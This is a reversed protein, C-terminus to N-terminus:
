EAKLVGNQEGLVQAIRAGLRRLQALSQRQGRLQAVGDDLGSALVVEALVARPPLAGHTADLLWRDGLRVARLESVLDVSAVAVLQARNCVESVVLRAQRGRDV